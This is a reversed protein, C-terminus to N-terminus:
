TDVQQHYNHIMMLGGDGIWLRHQLGLLVIVLVPILLKSM